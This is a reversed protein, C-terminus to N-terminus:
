KNANKLDHLEQYRTFSSIDDFCSFKSLHGDLWTQFPEHQDFKYPILYHDLTRITQMMIRYGTLRIFSTDQVPKKNDDKREDPKNEPINVKASDSALPTKTDKKNSNTPVDGKGKAQEEGKKQTLEVASVLDHVLASTLPLTPLLKTQCVRRYPGYNGWGSFFNDLQYFKAKNGIPVLVVTETMRSVSSLNIGSFIASASSFNRLQICASSIEIWFCLMRVRDMIETPKIITYAAWMAIAQEIVTIAKVAENGPVKDQLDRVAKELRWYEMVEAPDVDRFMYSMKMTLQRSFEEHGAPTDFQFLQAVLDKSFRPPFIYGTPIPKEQPMKLEGRAVLAKTRKVLRLGENESNSKMQDIKEIIRFLIDNPRDIKSREEIFTRMEDIIQDDHEAKWYQNLWDYMTKAVRIRTIGATADWVRVQAETLNVPRQEHYRKVLEDFFVAPTTFLRFCTFLTTSFDHDFVGEKSTLVAVLATLSGGRVSGERDFTLTEAAGTLMPMEVDVSANAPDNLLYIASGCNRYAPKPRVPEIATRFSMKVPDVDAHDVINVLASSAKSKTSKFSFISAKSSGDKPASKPIRWTVKHKRPKTGKGGPHIDILSTLEDVEDSVADSTSPSEPGSSVTDSAVTVQLVATVQPPLEPLPKSKLTTRVAAGLLGSLSEYITRVFKYSHELKAELEDPEIDKLNLFSALFMGGISYVSHLSMVYQPDSVDVGPIQQMQDVIDTICNVFVHAVARYREINKSKHANSLQRKVSRISPYSERLSPKPVAPAYKAYLVPAAKDSHISEAKQTQAVKSMPPSFDAVSTPPTIHNEVFQVTKKSAPPQRGPTKRLSPASMNNRENHLSSFLPTQPLGNM